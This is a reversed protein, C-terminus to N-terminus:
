WTITAVIKDGLCLDVGGPPDYRLVSKARDAANLWNGAVLLDLLAAENAVFDAENRSEAAKRAADRLTADLAGNGATVPKKARAKKPKPPYVPEQLSWDTANEHTIYFSDRLGHMAPQRFDDPRTVWTKCKGSPRARLATGDSNRLTRHYLTANGHLAVLQAKTVPTFNDNM